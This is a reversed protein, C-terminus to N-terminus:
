RLLVLAWYGLIGAIGLLEVAALILLGLVGKKRPVLEEWDEEQASRAAKRNRPNEEIMRRASELERQFLEDQELLESQLQELEKKPDDFVAM